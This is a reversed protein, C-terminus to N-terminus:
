RGSCTSSSPRTRGAASGTSCRSGRGPWCSGPSVHDRAARDGVPHEGLGTGPGLGGARKVVPDLWLDALTALIEEDAFENERGTRLLLERLTGAPVYPRESIFMIQDFGPRVIRGVAPEGLGATARFLAVRAPEDPGVIAVRTGHPIDVTLDKVLM